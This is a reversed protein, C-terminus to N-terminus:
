VAEAPEGSHAAIAAPTAPEGKALERYTALAIRQSQADHSGMAAGVDRALQTMDQQEISM